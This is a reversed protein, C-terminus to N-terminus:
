RRMGVFQLIAFVFTAVALIAILLFVIRDRRSM